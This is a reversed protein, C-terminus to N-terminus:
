GHLARLYMEEAKEIRDHETYLICINNVVGLTSTKNPGFIKEYEELV